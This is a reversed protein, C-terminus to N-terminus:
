RVARAPGRKGLRREGLLPLGPPPDGDLWPRRQPRGHDRALARKWDFLAGWAPDRVFGPVHELPDMLAACAIDALTFVEGVLHRGPSLRPALDALLGALRERTREVEDAHVSFVRRLRPDLVRLWGGNAWRLPARSWLLTGELLAPRRLAEDYALRRADPGLTEGFLRELSLVEERDGSGVPLLPPDPLERELHAAIADSGELVRGGDMLVPVRGKAGLRRVQRRTIPDVPVRRWPLGKYDLCWRAKECFHSWFIEYLLPTM